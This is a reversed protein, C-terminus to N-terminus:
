LSHVRHDLSMNRETLYYLYARFLPYAVSILIGEWVGPFHGCAFFFFFPFMWVGRTICFLLFCLLRLPIM